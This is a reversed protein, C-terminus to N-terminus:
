TREPAQETQAGDGAPADRAHRAELERESEEEIRRQEAVADLHALQGGIHRRREDLAALNNGRGYLVLTDGPRIRANRTPAGIYAGDAPQIGLVLVGEERLRLELLTHDALWDEPQVQLEMVGYEGGLHLLNAYDRVDLQTWRSLAWSIVHSLRNDLWQSYAATWLVAIGAVLLAIRTLWGILGVEKQDVFTLIMTSIATVIGANGLLMLLMLIRRRVPHNVVSEAENTTFGVGSFASRAQFRAAQRSLGTHTLAVTAVRTILISASLVILLSIAALM